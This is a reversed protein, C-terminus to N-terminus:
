TKAGQKEGASFFEPVLLRFFGNRVSDAVIVEGYKAIIGMGSPRILQSNPERIIARYFKICQRICLPTLLVRVSPRFGLGSLTAFSSMLVFCIMTLKEWSDLEPSVAAIGM